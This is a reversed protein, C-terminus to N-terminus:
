QTRNSNNKLIIESIDAISSVVHDVSPHTETKTDALGTRVLITAECGANKGALTDSLMDGVMWSSSLDINNEKAAKLLMGPGPKRDPHDITELDNVTRVEPCYYWGDISSGQENLQHDLEAQVSKLGEFDLLGKGIAAQNTVIIRLFGAEELQILAQAAGDILEVQDPRNLYHVSKILTGDRDLFVASRM